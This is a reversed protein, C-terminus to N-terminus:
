LHRKAWNGYCSHCSHIRIHIYVYIDGNNQHKMFATNNIVDELGGRRLCKIGDTVTITQGFALPWRKDDALNWRHL